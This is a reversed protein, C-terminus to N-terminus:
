RGGGRGDAQADLWRRLSEPRWRPLRGLYLDPRPLTGASVGREATRRGIRLAAALDDLTLLPAVPPAVGNATSDAARQPLKV